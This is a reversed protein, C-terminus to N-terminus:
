RETVHLLFSSRENALREALQPQGDERARNIILDFVENYYIREDFKRGLKRTVDLASDFAEKHAAEVLWTAEEQWESPLNMDEIVGLMEAKIRRSADSVLARRSTIALRSTIENQTEALDRRDTDFQDAWVHAESVADILQVNVHVRDGSRRVSGELVYRVGLDRGIQKVDVPKGKYTFATTRSIVFSGSIRSLDSTLDDTVADAFYAQDPDQSLNAFPLSVTETFSLSPFM